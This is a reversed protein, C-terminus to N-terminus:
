PTYLREAFNNTAFKCSAFLSQPMNLYSAYSVDSNHATIRSLSKYFGYYKIANFSM